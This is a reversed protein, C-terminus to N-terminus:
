LKDIVFNVITYALGAVVLGIVAFMITNKASTVASSDGSSVVYRFGGIVIMVVAVIGIIYLIANIITEVTLAASDKTASQCVVNGGNGGCQNWVNIAEAPHTVVVAGVGAILLGALVLQKIRKM